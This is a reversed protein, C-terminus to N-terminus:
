CYSYFNTQQTNTQIKEIVSQFDKFEQETVGKLLEKSLEVSLNRATSFVEFGKQTLMLNKKRKDHKDQIRAVYRLEILTNVQRLIISKDRQFHNALDQQTIDERLNILHLMVYQEVNLQLSIKKFKELLGLKILNMTQGMLYSLPKENDM